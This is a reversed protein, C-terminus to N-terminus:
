LSGGGLVLTGDKRESWDIGYGSKLIELFEKVDESEFYGGIELRGLEKDTIVLKIGTKQEFTSAIENLTSGGLVLLPTQWELRQKLDSLNTDFVGFDPGVRDTSLMFEVRQGNHVLSPEESRNGLDSEAVTEEWYPRQSNDSKVAVTGEVVLVDVKDATYKVNFATGVAQVSVQDVSVVFPRKLDKAVSFHAEGKLLEVARIHPSYNVKVKSDANLRIVSGDPLRQTWPELTSRTETFFLDSELEKERGGWSVVALGIMCVAVAIALSWALKPISNTKSEDNELANRAVESPIYDLSDWMRCSSEYEKAFEVDSTIRKRLEREEEKSLEREQRVIWQVADEEISSANRSLKWPFRIRM